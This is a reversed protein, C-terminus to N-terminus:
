LNIRIGLFSCLTMQMYLSKINRTGRIFRCISESQRIAEALPEIALAFLLPSLPCGQRTGRYLSFSESVMGNIEMCARPTSYLMKIWRIFREGLGFAGMVEWLYTWEVSDFAKAADLSLIARSGPNDSPLQMNLYLRRLNTATSKTPIFGCQNQHILGQIHRNLRTALVRALINADSNLLSIPRYSEPALPDKGTKPLVIICADKM